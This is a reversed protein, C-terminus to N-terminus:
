HWQFQPASLMLALLCASSEDAALRKTGLTLEHLDAAALSQSHFARSLAQSISHPDTQGTREIVRHPEVITGDIKNQVLDIAFNWRYVLGPTWADVESPYGDPRPWGYPSQGMKELYPLVGIGTTQADVARLASITYDLPRKFKKSEVTVFDPSQVIAALVKRLDGDTKTFVVAVREVIPLPVAEGMFWRCLKRSINFATSPHRSLLDVIQDAESSNEDTVIQQGLVLKPRDDHWDARFTAEGPWTTFGSKISWGSLCRALEQVDKQTYGGHVGLTHLELLERAYNENPKENHARSKANDLFFLMAPSHVSASLLDRFNGLAHQRIQRDDITKLWACDDKRLDINFHDTWFEVMVELLQRNSYTARLIRAQRLENAVQGLSPDYTQRPLKILKKLSVSVIDEQSNAREWDRADSPEMNLTDLLELQDELPRNETLHEPALQEELFASAGIENIRRTLTTTSGFTVRDLIRRDASSLEPSAHGSKQRLPPMLVTTLTDCGGCSIAALPAIALRSFERRSLPM